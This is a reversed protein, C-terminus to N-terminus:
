ADVVTVLVAEVGYVLELENLIKVAADQLDDWGAEWFEGDEKTWSGGSTGLCLAALLHRDQVENLDSVPSEHVNAKIGMGPFCHYFEDEIAGPRITEPFLAYVSMGGEGSNHIGPTANPWKIFGNNANGDCRKM